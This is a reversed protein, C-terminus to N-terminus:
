LCLRRRVDPRQLALLPPEQGASYALAPNADYYASGWGGGLGFVKNPSTRIGGTVDVSGNYIMAVARVSFEPKWNKRGEPSLHAKVADFYDKAVFNPTEFDLKEGIVTSTTDAQQAAASLFTFITLVLTILRKM